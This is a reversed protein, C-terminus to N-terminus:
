EMQWVAEKLWERCVSAEAAKWKGNERCRAAVARQAGSRAVCAQKGAHRRQVM